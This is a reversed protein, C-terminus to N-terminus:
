QTQRSACRLSIPRTRRSWCAIRAVPLEGTTMMWNKFTIQASRSIHMSRMGAKWVADGSSLQAARRRPDSGLAGLMPGHTTPMVRTCSSPKGLEAGLPSSRRSRVASATGPSHMYHYDLGTERRSWTPYAASRACAARNRGVLHPSEHSARRSHSIIAAREWRAHSRARQRGTVRRDCIHSVARRRRARPRTVTPTSRPM